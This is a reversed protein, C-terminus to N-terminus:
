KYNKLYNLKENMKNQLVPDNKKNKLCKITVKKTDKLSSYKETLNVLLVNLKEDDPFKKIGEKIVDLSYKTMGRDNYINSLDLYDQPYDPKINIAIQFENSSKPLNDILLYAQSLNYHYLPRKTNLEIAKKFSNIAKDAEKKHLQTVGLFNYIEDNNEFIKLAEQSADYAKNYNKSEILTNIYHFYINKDYFQKELAKEYFTEAMKLDSLNEYILGLYYNAKGNDNLSNAAKYMYFIAENLKGTNALLVGVNFNSLYDSDNVKLIEYFDDLAKKQENQELYYIARSYFAKQYRKNTYLCKNLYELQKTNDNKLKYAMAINYYAETYDNNFLIAKEAYEIAKDPKNKLLYVYALNNYAQLYNIETEISKIFFQEAKEIENYNIYDLGKKNYYEANLSVESNTDVYVVTRNESKETLPLEEKKNITDLLMLFEESNPIINLAKNIQERAEHLNNLELYANALKFYAESNKPNLKNVSKLYEICKTFDGSEFYIDAMEIYDIEQPSIENEPLFKIAKDSVPIINHTENSNNLKNKYDKSLDLQIPSTTDNNPNILNFAKNFEDFAQNLNGLHKYCIGLNYHAQSNNPNLKIVKILYEIASNYNGKQINNVAINFNVKESQIEESFAIQANITIISILILTKIKYKM